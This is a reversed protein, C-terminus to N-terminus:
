WETPDSLAGFFTNEGTYSGALTISIPVNIGWYTVGSPQTTTSTPKAVNINLLAQTSSSLTNGAGLATAYAISSTAFVQESESITSTSSNPCQVANTYTTCMSEGTLLEDIGVNGQSRITTSAELTPTFNGPELAGYPIALTDLALYLFGNLEQGISGETHSASTSANDDVATVAARWDETNFISETAGGDTPDAVYWLPFTCDWVQDTDTIGTCSTSSATCSINWTTTAVGTNYCNNPDYAGTATGNCTTSGIGSRYVSVQYDTIEDGASANQCSNNDVVTYQLTYGTTEGANQTLVLDSGGNLTILGSTVTPLANAVTIQDNTANVGGSAVHNHNDRVFVYADYADDPTPIQVTYTASPDSAAYTSSALTMAACGSTAIFSNTSCVWLQVTDPTPNTDGDSATTTFNITQGPEAPSDNAVVTFTPRSNMNFPSATTASGTRFAANCRADIVDDCIWAFWDQEEAFPAAEVTTTAARAQTGSSAAPSVAWRTDAADCEPEAGTNATPATATSCILLYYDEANSDTATAVWAIEDGSNTPTTTSSETEEQADVTWQPPTNLVTITTTALSQARVETLEKAGINLLFAAVFVMVSTIATLVTIKGATQMYVPLDKM